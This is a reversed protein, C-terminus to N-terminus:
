YKWTLLPKMWVGASYLLCSCFSTNNLEEWEMHVVIPNVSIKWLSQWMTDPQLVGNCCCNSPSYSYDLNTEGYAYSDILRHWTDYLRTSRVQTKHPKAQVELCLEISEGKYVMWRGRPRGEWRKGRKCNRFFLFCCFCIVFLKRFSFLCMYPHFWWFGVLSSPFSM